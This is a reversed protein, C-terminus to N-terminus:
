MGGVNRERNAFKRKDGFMEECGEVPDRWVIGGCSGERNGRKRKVKFLIILKGGRVNGQYNRTESSM